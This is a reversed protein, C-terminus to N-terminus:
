LAELRTVLGGLHSVSNKGFVFMQRPLEVAHSARRISLEPQRSLTRRSTTSARESRTGSIPAERCSRSTDASTALAVSGALRNVMM